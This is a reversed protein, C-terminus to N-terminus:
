YFSDKKIFLSNKFVTDYFSLENFHPGFLKIVYDHNTIDINHENFDNILEIHKDILNKIRYNKEYDFPNHKIEMSCRICYNKLGNKHECGSYKYCECYFYVLSEKHLNYMINLNLYYIMRAAFFKLSPFKEEEEEKKIFFKENLSEM